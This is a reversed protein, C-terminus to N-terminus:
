VFLQCCPAALRSVIDAFPEGTDTSRNMNEGGLKRLRLASFVYLLPTHDM